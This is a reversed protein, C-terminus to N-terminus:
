SSIRSFSWNSASACRWFRVALKRGMAAPSSDEGRSKRCLREVAERDEKSQVVKKFVAAEADTMAPGKYVVEVQEGRVQVSVKERLEPPLAQVAPAVSMVEAVSQNFLPGFELEPAEAWVMEHAEFKEFGSDVLAETLANAADVFGQSTAFAYAHNLEEHAQPPRVAAAASAWSDAGGGHQEVPKERQVPHVRVPLGM